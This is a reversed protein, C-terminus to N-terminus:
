NLSFQKLQHIIKFLKTFLLVQLKNRGVSLYSLINLRLRRRDQTLRSDFILKEGSDLECRYIVYFIAIKLLDYHFSKKNIIEFYFQQMREAYAIDMNRTAGQLNMRYGYLVKEIQIASSATDYVSHLAMMDECFRVGPPFFIPPLLEKKIVRCWPYWISAAFIPTLQQQVNFAGFYQHVFKAKNEKVDSLQQFTKWGIEIIDPQQSIAALISDYYGPLVVDDADVFGIYQGTAYAIGTNRAVSVGQNEQELLIIEKTALEKEFISRILDVSRDKSGDSVLILEVNVPKELLLSNLCEVIYKEVNYIPVIISLDIKM